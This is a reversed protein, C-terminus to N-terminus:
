GSKKSLLRTPLSYSGSAKFVMQAMRLGMQQASIAPTEPFELHKYQVTSKPRDAENAAGVSATYIPAVDPEHLLTLKFRTHTDIENFSPFIKLVTNPLSYQFTLHHTIRDRALVKERRPNNSKPITGKYRITLKGKSGPKLKKDLKISVLRFWDDYCFGSVKIKKHLPKDATGLNTYTISEIGISQDVNLIIRDYYDQSNVRKEFGAKCFLTALGSCKKAKRQSGKKLQGEPTKELSIDEPQPPQAVNVDIEVVGETALMLTNLKLTLAYHTPVVVKPREHALRCSGGRPRHEDGLVQKISLLAFSAFLIWDLKRPRPM